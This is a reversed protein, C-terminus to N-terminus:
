FQVRLSFQIVRPGGGAVGATTGVATATASGVTATIKGFTASSQNNQPNAFNTHNFLNFFEARFQLGLQETFKFSKAAAFNYNQLGPGYYQNRGSTGVRGTPPTASFYTTDFAADVNRNNQRLRGTGVVDPRDNFQNFGSFDRQNNFVTFPAGTQLTTGGSIQWGGFVQKNLGNNWGFLRHGPGVPVDIVFTIVSRHRIDFSSPGREAKMNNVDAVGTREGTSGFFASASDISKGLTYSGQIFIGQRGQYRTTFVVGNYNSNGSDVGSTVTSFFPYPFVQENPSQNGRKTPDNVIVRPQNQDIFTGLKHGTSGQYDVEVSLDHRIRRQIGFNYQYIYASRINPDEANFTLSGSTPTGPGQKGFNSVLPVSQDFGIAWPFGSSPQTVGATQTTTLTYPANLGMNAPINNFLDDYGVRFGLRIVTDDHGFLSEAFRPTYAMGLVPAFNNKDSNVGTNSLAMPAQTLVFSAIGLKNPDIQLLQNTGLLVPGVGPIFNTANQRTQGIASPYEYRIGYNLTLNDKIKYQDQWFLDWAYRRWYRTTGGYRFTSTNVLGAAFDAFNAFTFTGRASGDLFRKADERRLHYGWRWSHKSAGLPAIWSMNNFLEYTNTTRGQPLNNTSGLSSFGDRLNITPLGSDLMNQSAVVVGPLPKGDPGVFITSADFGIDQVTIFTENRSFGLRFENLFTPSFIHTENLVASRSVPTNANGNLSPLTGATFTKGRYDAWRFTLHDKESFNQDVRGLYTNDFTTSRVNSIFNNAGTANPAPWFQLLSKSIPDTVTAREADTPVKTLSVTPAVQRFGEWSAFFFTKNKVIPGGFTAGYQNRHLPNKKAGPSKNTFFDAADLADNRFFEFASGHFQNSGSKTVISIQGGTGRGFEATPVSTQVAFEQVADTIRFNGLVSNVQTDVNSVGDLLFTNSQSRAGSVNFGGGQTGASSPLVGPTILALDLFQRANLPMSAITRSEVVSSLTTKDSELLTGVARVEVEQVIEGVELVVDVRTIQDVQVLANVITKKFGSLEFVLSYGAPALQPFQFGGNEDSLATLQANTGTNTLTVKVGPVLAGSSDKVFGTISGTPSAMVWSTCILFLVCLIIWRYVYTTM